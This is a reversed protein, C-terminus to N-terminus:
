ELQNRFQLKRHKHLALATKLRKQTPNASEVRGYHSTGDAFLDQYPMM